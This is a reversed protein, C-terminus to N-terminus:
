PKQLQDEIDYKVERFFSLHRSFKNAMYDDSVTSLTQLYDLLDTYLMTVEGCEIWGAVYLGGDDDTYATFWRGEIPDYWNDCDNEKTIYAGHGLRSNVLHFGQGVPAFVKADELLTVDKRLYVRGEVVSNDYLSVNRSACAGKIVANDTAIVNYLLSADEVLAAGSIHVNGWIRSEGIVTAHGTISSYDRITSEDAVVAYDCVYCDPYIWCSGNEGLNSEREIWGGVTGIAVDPRINRKAVIQRLLALRCRGHNYEVKQIRTRGTFGFKDNM